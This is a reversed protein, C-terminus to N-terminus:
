CCFKVVIYWIMNSKEHCSYNVSKQTKKELLIAPFILEHIITVNSLEEPKFGGM